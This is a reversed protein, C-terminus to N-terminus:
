MILSWWWPFYQILHLLCNFHHHACNLNYPSCWHFFLATNNAKRNVEQERASPVWAPFICKICDKSDCKKFFLTKMIVTLINYATHFLVNIHCLCGSLSVMNKPWLFTHYLVNFKHRQLSASSNNKETITYMRLTLDESYYLFRNNLM